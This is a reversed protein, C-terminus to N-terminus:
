KYETLHQVSQMNRNYWQVPFVVPLRYVQLLVTIMVTPVVFGKEKSENKKKGRAKRLQFTKVDAPKPSQQAATLALTAAQLLLQHSPLTGVEVM